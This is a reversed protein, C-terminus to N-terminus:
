VGTPLRVLFTTGVGALSSVNITGGMRLVLERSIALGLGSSLRGPKQSVGAEFVRDRIAPPLGPGNDSVEILVHGDKIVDLRVTVLNEDFARSAIAETANLLLNLVVQVIRSAPVRVGPVDCLQADIRAITALRPRVIRLAREVADRVNALVPGKSEPRLFLQFDHVLDTITGSSTTALELEAGLGDVDGPALAGRRRIERLQSELGELASLLCGLPNAIEHALGAGLLSAGALRDLRAVMETPLTTMEIRATLDEVDRGTENAASAQNMMAEDEKM